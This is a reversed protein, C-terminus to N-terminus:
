NVPNVDTPLIMGKLRIRFKPNFKYRKIFYSFKKMDLQRMDSPITNYINRTKSIIDGKIIQEITRNETLQRFVNLPHRTKLTRHTQRVEIWKKTELITQWGMSKFVKTRGWKMSKNVGLVLRAASERM